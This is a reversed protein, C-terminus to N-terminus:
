FFRKFFSNTWSSFWSEKEKECYTGKNEYGSDCVWSHGSSTLHANVPINIFKCSNGEKKYGYECEWSTGDSSTIISHDPIFVKICTNQKTEIYGYDCTWITGKKDTYHAHMPMKVELCKNGEKKYGYDCEWDHGNSTFYANSPIFLQICSYGEKKYGYPCDQKESICDNGIKLYGPLCMGNVAKKREEIKICKNLNNLEYGEECYLMGNWRQTPEIGLTKRLTLKICLNDVLDYGEKCFVGGNWRQTPELILDQGFTFIPILLIPLIFILIKKNM